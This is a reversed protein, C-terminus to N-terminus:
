IPTMVRSIVFSKGITVQQGKAPRYNEMIFGGVLTALVVGVTALLLASIRVAKFHKYDVNMM